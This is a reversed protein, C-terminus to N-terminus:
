WRGYARNSQVSLAVLCTIFFRKVSRVKVPMKKLQGSFQMARTIMEQDSKSGAIVEVLPLVPVPNFFHLGILREPSQLASAIDEIM